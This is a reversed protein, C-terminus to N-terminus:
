EYKFLQFSHTLIFLILLAKSSITDLTGCPDITPVIKNLM